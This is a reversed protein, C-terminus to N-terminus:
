RTTMPISSTIVADNFLDRIGGGRGEVVYIMEEQHAHTHERIFSRPALTQTGFSFDSKSATSQQNFINRVFGNAPVPQWYSEGDDPGAVRATGTQETEVTM